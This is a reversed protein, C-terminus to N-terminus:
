RAAPSLKSRLYDIAETSGIPRDSLDEDFVM